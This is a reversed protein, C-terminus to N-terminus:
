DWSPHALVLIPAQQRPQAPTSFSEKEILQGDYVFLSASRVVLPPITAVAVNAPSSSQGMPFTTGGFLPQFTM